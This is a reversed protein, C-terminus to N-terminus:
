DVDAIHSFAKFYLIIELQENLTLHDKEGLNGLPWIQIKVNDTLKYMKQNLLISLLDSKCQKGIKVRGDDLYIYYHGREFSIKPLILLNNVNGKNDMTCPYCLMYEDNGLGDTGAFSDCL